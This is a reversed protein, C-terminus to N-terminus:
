TAKFGSVLTVDDVSSWYNPTNLIMFMIVVSGSKPKTRVTRTKIIPTRILSFKRLGQVFGRRKAVTTM